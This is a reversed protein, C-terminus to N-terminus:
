PGILRKLSFVLGAAWRAFDRHFSQWMKTLCFGPQSKFKLYLSLIYFYCIAQENAPAADRANKPPPFSKVFWRGFDAPGCATRPCCSLFGTEVKGGKRTGAALESCM